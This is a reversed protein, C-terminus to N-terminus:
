PQGDGLAKSDGYLGASGSALSKLANMMPLLCPDGPLCCLSITDANLCLYLAPVALEFPIDSLLLPKTTPPSNPRSAKM